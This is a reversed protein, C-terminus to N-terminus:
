SAARITDLCWRLLGARPTDLVRFAYFLRYLALDDDTLGRDRLHALVLQQDSAASGDLGTLHLVSAAADLRPDGSLTLGSFDVVGVVCGQMDVMVNAPDDDGHVLRPEAIPRKAPLREM